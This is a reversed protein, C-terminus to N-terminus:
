EPPCEPAPAISSLSRSQRLHDMAETVAQLRAENSRDGANLDPHYRRALRRYAKRADALTATEPLGLTQLARADEPPVGRVPRAPADARWRFTRLADDIREASAAANHAFGRTERDWQPYPTHAQFIADSDMGDFYNWGANFARVHDLCFYQWAPPGSSPALSSGPRHLPARYDGALPCDPHACPRDGPYAGSRAKM